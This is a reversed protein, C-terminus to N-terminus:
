APSARELIKRVSAHHWSGGRKPRRGESDLQEAIRRPSLGQGDLEIMRAITELETPNDVLKSPRNEKAKTSTKSYTGDDTVAKGFALGGYARGRRKLSGLSAVTRAKIMLREFEAFADIIRRMLIDTPSDGETGEGAASIVRSGRRQIAAEIMHVKATDRALRDRKAVILITGERCAAIAEALGLCKDLPKAGGIDEDIFPEALDIGLRAAHARIADMQADLGNEQDDTSVRLYPLGLTIKPAQKKAKSGM